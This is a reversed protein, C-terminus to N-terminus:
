AHSQLTFGAAQISQQLSELLARWLRTRGAETRRRVQNNIELEIGLYDSPPLENRLATTLGDDIGLYPQNMEVRLLPDSDELNRKWHHCLSQEAPRSPDFLLGIDLRRRKGRFVPTFTHVSLHIVGAGTRIISEATERVQTRYPHYHRELILRHHDAGMPNTFRSFLQSNGLSRNLDVVLRSTTSHFLTAGSHKAFYSAAELAGPDWGRHSNLHQRALPSDLAFSFEYPVQNGGHECSLMLTAARTM